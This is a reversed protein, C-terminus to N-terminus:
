AMRRMVLEIYGDQMMQMCTSYRSGRAQEKAQERRCSTIESWNRQITSDTIEPFYRCAFARIEETVEPEPLREGARLREKVAMIRKWTHQDVYNRNEEPQYVDEQCRLEKRMQKWETVIEAISPAYKCRVILRNALTKGEEATLSKPLAGSLVYYFEKSWNMQKAYCGILTSMLLKM